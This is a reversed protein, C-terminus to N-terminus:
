RAGGDSKALARELNAKALQASSEADFRWIHFGNVVLSAFDRGVGRELRVTIEPKM